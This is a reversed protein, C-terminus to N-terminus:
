TGNSKFITYRIGILFQETFLSYIPYFSPAESYIDKLGKYYTLEIALRDSIKYNAGLRFGYDVNTAIDYVMISGFYSDYGYIEYFDNGNVGFTQTNKDSVLVAVQIAIQLSLNSLRLSYYLPLTLYSAKRHIENYGEGLYLGSSYGYVDSEIRTKGRIISGNLEFGLISKKSIEKEFFFGIKGSLAANNHTKSDGYFSKDIFRSPGMSLCLGAEIQGVATSSFIILSLVVVTISHWRIM